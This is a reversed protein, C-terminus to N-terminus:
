ARVYAFGTGFEELDPPYNFFFRPRAYRFGPHVRYGPERM